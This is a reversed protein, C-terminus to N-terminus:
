CNNNMWENMLKDNIKRKPRKETGIGNNSTEVNARESCIREVTKENM